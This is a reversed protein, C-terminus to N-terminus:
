KTYPRIKDCYGSIKRFEFPVPLVTIDSREVHKKSHIPCSDSLLKLANASTSKLLVGIEFNRYSYAKSCSCTSHTFLGQAARSLNASTLMFWRIDLCDCAETEVKHRGDSFRFYVKSHPITMSMPYVTKFREINNPHYEHFYCKVIRDLREFVDKKMFLGQVSGVEQVYEKTPWILKVRDNLDEVDLFLGEPDFSSILYEFFDLNVGDCVSTVQIGFRDSPLLNGLPAESLCQHVRELGFKQKEDVMKEVNEREDPANIYYYSEQRKRSGLGVIKGRIQTFREGDIPRKMKGSGKCKKCDHGTQYGPVVTILDASAKSFDYVDVLDGVFSVHQRLWPMIAVLASNSPINRYVMQDSQHSLFNQLTHGFKKESVSANPNKLTPFFQIWTLNVSDDTTMNASSILVYLGSDTFVLIYKAHHAGNIVNRQLGKDTYHRSGQAVVEIFHVSTSCVIDSSSTSVRQVDYGSSEHFEISSNIQDGHFMVFPIKSTEKMLAPFDKQLTDLSLIYTSMCVAHVNEEKLIDELFTSQCFFDGDPTNEYVVGRKHHIFIRRGDYMNSRYGGIIKMSQTIKKPKSKPIKKSLVKM